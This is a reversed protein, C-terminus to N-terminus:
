MKRKKARVSNMLSMGYALPIMVERRTLSSIKVMMRFAYSRERRFLANQFYLSPSFRNVFDHIFHM